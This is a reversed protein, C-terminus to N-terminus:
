STVNMGGLYSGHWTHVWIQGNYANVSLMGEIDQRGFDFTYYGPMAKSEMIQAEPLYGRLFEQTLNEAETLDYEAGETRTRGAGSRTNWMMNPGPEPYTSGSYRDVIIEAIDQGSGTDKVVAYYNSSFAMFDEVEMNSGYQRAFSEISKLAEDQAIPKSGPYYLAMMNGMMMNGMMESRYSYNYSPSNMMGPGYSYNGSPNNMMGPRYSYNGGPNNMMGPGMHVPPYSGKDYTSGYMMPRFALFALILIIVLILLGIIINKNDAM